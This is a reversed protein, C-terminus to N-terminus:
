ISQDVFLSMRKERGASPWSNLSRALLLLRFLSSAWIYLCRGVAVSMGHENYFCCTWNISLQASFVRMTTISIKWLLKTLMNLTFFRIFFILVLTTGISGLLLLLDSTVVFLLLSHKPCCLFDLMLPSLLVPNLSVDELPVLLFGASGSKLSLNTGVIVTTTPVLNLGHWRSWICAFLCSWLKRVLDSSPPSLSLSLQLAKCSYWTILCIWLKRVLDSSPPTKPCFGIRAILCSWLKGVLDSESESSTLAWLEFTKPCFGIRAVLCSCLKGGGVEEEEEEPSCLPTSASACLSM